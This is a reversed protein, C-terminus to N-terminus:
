RRLREFTIYMAVTHENREGEIKMDLVAWNRPNKEERRKAIQLM